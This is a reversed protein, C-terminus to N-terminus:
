KDHLTTLRVAYINIGARATHKFAKARLIKANTNIHSIIM